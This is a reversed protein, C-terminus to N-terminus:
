LRHLDAVQARGRAIEAGLQQRGAMVDRRPRQRGAAAAEIAGALLVTILAIEQEGRGALLEIEQAEREAVLGLRLRALQRAPEVERDGVLVVALVDTEHRGAAVALHDLPELGPGGLGAVDDVEVAAHEAAMGADDMEGDALPAPEADGGAMREVHDPEIGGRAADHDPRAIGQTGAPHPQALDVPQALAADVMRQAGAPVLDEDLHARGPRRLRGPQAAAGAADLDIEDGALVADRGPLGAHEVVRGVTLRPHEAAAEDLARHRPRRRQRRALSARQGARAAQLRLGSRAFRFAPQTGRPMLGPEKRAAISAVAQTVPTIAPSISM